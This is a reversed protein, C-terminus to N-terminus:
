SGFEATGYQYRWSDVTILTTEEAFCEAGIAPMLESDLAIEYLVVM